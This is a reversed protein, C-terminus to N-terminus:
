NLVRDIEAGYGDVKVQNPYVEVIAFGNEEEEVMGRFTIYHINKQVSYSPQHAHGNFYARVNPYSELLTKVAAHNWLLHPDKDPMLPMHCFVLVNDGNKAAADLENRLWRLQKESLGGNWPQANSANRAKLQQLFGTATQYNESGKPNGYLSLDNGDLVIFRWRNKVFSYFRNKMGLVTPVKGIEEPQVAFEHNGLVHYLPRKLPKTLVHLTDFSRVDRDIFDGLHVVFAVNKQNFTQVAENLKRLSSRYHRTGETPCDCYQVDTMVGFTFLPKQATQGFVGFGSILFLVFSLFPSNLKM